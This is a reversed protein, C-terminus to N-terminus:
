ILILELSTEYVNPILAQAAYICSPSTESYIDTFKWFFDTLMTQIIEQEDTSNAIMKFNGINILNDFVKDAFMSFFRGLYFDPREALFKAGKRIMPFITNIQEIFIEGLNFINKCKTANFCDEFFYTNKFLDSEFDKNQLGSDALLQKFKPLLLSKFNDNFTNLSYKGPIPGIDDMLKKLIDKVIKQFFLLCYIFLM